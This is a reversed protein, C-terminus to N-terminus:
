ASSSTAAPQVGVVSRTLYDVLDMKTLIGILREDDDLVLAAYHDTFLSTLIGADEGARVTRVNRYMVEAVSQDRTTKGEVLTHLLDSETVIGVLKGGDLVPVQSIGRGHMLEIVQGM